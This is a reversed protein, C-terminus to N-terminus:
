FKNGNSYKMSIGSYNLNNSCNNDILTNNNSFDLYIGKNENIM